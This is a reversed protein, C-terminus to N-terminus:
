GGLTEQRFRNAAVTHGLLDGDILTLGVGGDLAVIGLVSRHNFYTLDLIEVVDDFLVMARDFADGSRHQPEFRKLSHLSYQRPDLHHVHELLAISALHPSVREAQSFM